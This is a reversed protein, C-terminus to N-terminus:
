KGDNRTMESHIWHRQGETTRKGDLQGRMKKIKVYDHGRWNRQDESRHGNIHLWWPNEEYM